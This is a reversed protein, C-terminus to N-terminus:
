RSKVRYVRVFQGTGVALLDGKPSLAIGGWGPKPPIDVMLIPKGNGVDFVKVTMKRAIGSDFLGPVFTPIAFTKGNRSPMVGPIAVGVAGLDVESVITGSTSVIIQRSGCGVFLTEANIFDPPGCWGGEARVLVKPESDITELFVEQRKTWAM